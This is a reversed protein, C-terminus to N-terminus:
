PEPGMKCDCFKTGRTVHLCGRRPHHEALPHQCFPCRAARAPAAELEGRLFQRVHGTRTFVTVNGLADEFYRLARVAGAGRVHFTRSKQVFIGQEGMAIEWRRALREIAASPV